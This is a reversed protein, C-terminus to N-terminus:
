ESQQKANVMDEALAVYGAADLLNDHKHQHAERAMKLLVMMCAVDHATLPKGVWASWLLAIRNFSEQPSGYDEQRDQNLVAFAENLLRGNLYEMIGVRTKPGKLPESELNRTQSFFLRRPM